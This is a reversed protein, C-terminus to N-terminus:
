SLSVYEIEREMLSAYLFILSRRDRALAPPSASERTAKEKKERVKAEGKEKHGQTARTPM